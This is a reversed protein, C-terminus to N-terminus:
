SCGTLTPFSYISGPNSLRSTSAAVSAKIPTEIQPGWVHKLTYDELVM